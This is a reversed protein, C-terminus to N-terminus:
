TDHLTQQNSTKLLKSKTALTKKIKKARADGLGEVKALEAATASFVKLPTGFKTLMRVAFKEGIGPLSCLVSLQQKELDSSKKIKKLYPGKPTDKRSCMSVLLKATHAASPTPIVPINFDLVVTSLAGYFILPNETIEEIEDVNGEMLVVPHEFHEKLRSCQDFLRGDFVSAMLDRISKREVITEPAVIYDGIPLTKMEINLGISKLLDPIGSKREREDVVIRLNELNM